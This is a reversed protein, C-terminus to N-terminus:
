IVLRAYKKLSLNCSRQLNQTCNQLFIEFQKFVQWKYIFLIISLNNKNIISWKTIMMTKMGCVIIKDQVSLLQDKEYLFTEWAEFMNQFRPIIMAYWFLQYEKLEGGIKRHARKGQKYFYLHKMKLVFENSRTKRLWKKNVAGMSLCDETGFFSTIHTTIDNPCFEFMQESVPLQKFPYLGILEIIPYRINGAGFFEDLLNEYERMTYWPLLNRSNVRNNTVMYKHRDYIKTWNTKLVKYLNDYESHDKNNFFVLGM